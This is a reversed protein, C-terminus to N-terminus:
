EIDAYVDAPLVDDDDNDDDDNDDRLEGHGGRYKVFLPLKGSFYLADCASPPAHVLFVCSIRANDVQEQLAADSMCYSGAGIKIWMRSPSSHFERHLRTELVRCNFAFSSTHLVQVQMVVTNSPCCVANCRLMFRVEFGLEVLDEWSRIELGDRRKIASTDRGLDNVRKLAWRCIERLFGPEGFSFKSFGIYM